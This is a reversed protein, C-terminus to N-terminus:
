GRIDRVLVVYMQLVRPLYHQNIEVATNLTPLEFINVFPIADGPISSCFEQARNQFIGEKKM